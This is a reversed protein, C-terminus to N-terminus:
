NVPRYESGKSAFLSGPLIAASFKKPDAEKEIPVGRYFKQLEINTEESRENTMRLRYAALRRVIDNALVEADVGGALDCSLMWTTKNLDKYVFRIVEHGFTKYKHQFGVLGIWEYRLHGALAKDRRQVAKRAKSALNLAEGIVFASAGGFGVWGGAEKKNYRRNIFAVRSDSVYLFNDRDLSDSYFTSYSSQGEPRKYLTIGALRVENFVHDQPERIINKREDIRAHIFPDLPEDVEVEFYATYDKLVREAPKEPKKPEPANKKEEALKLNRQVREEILPNPFPPAVQALPTGGQVALGMANLRDALYEETLKKEAAEERTLTRDTGDLEFTEPSAGRNSILHTKSPITRVWTYPDMKVLGLELGTLMENMEDGMFLNPGYYQWRTFVAVYTAAYGTTGNAYTIEKKATRVVELHATGPIGILFHPKDETLQLKYMRQNRTSLWDQMIQVVNQHDYYFFTYEYGYNEFYPPREAILGKEIKRKSPKYM